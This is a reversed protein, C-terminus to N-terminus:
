SRLPLYIHLTRSGVGGPVVEGLLMLLMAVMGGIPTLLRANRNVAGSSTGTQALQLFFRASSGSGSRKVEIYSGNVGLKQVLPNGNYESWYMVGLFIIFLMMITAFLAV